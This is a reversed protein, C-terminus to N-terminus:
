IKILEEFVVHTQSRSGPAFLPLIDLLAPYKSKRFGSPFEIWFVRRFPPGATM